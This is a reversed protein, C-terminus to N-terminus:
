RGNQKQFIEKVMEMTDAEEPLKDPRLRVIRPFRLAYGSLHRDSKMINNFAVELVIKPEVTRRFGQDEVTHELFWETMQAIEVDTLGSYAKGINLLRDGDRVAFTYDSLVGIRRGHGFEVATVVVDLTALERKLKLWSKGRRGPTYPSEPDKIMLGENGRAQAQDFLKNLDDPSTVQFVPARIVKTTRRVDPTALWLDEASLVPDAVPFEIATQTAHSEGRAVQSERKQKSLLEDLVGARERLPRDIMLESAYLVDFVLYAVPVERMVKDSVKKRGLRQQLASFPLARGASRLHQVPSSARVEMIESELEDESLYSWAVIEGDLIADQPLGVLADPLEPFSETIEDRTRSFFRVTDGSCHAQARIGDYKDEVRANQFYNLTDEASEAPSALMFGIPHFLRMKAEPLKNEAALRLTEGIDGLLMNARQVEKLSEGFGKAIAEEVLSEKLGIRLDGTMIKVIYKAELPSVESLLKRVLIGKAAPGRAAAIERFIQQIKSPRLSGDSCPQPLAAGAVAGLDGLKRYAATLAEENQGSLEQVTRWLLTGGVQLTTEEWTPFPRGSFFVAGVVAEDVPASKLYESLLATKELKKTTAAIKEATEAFARM